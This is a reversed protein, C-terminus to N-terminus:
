PTLVRLSTSPSYREVALRLIPLRARLTSPHTLRLTLCDEISIVPIRGGANAATLKIVRVLISDAASDVAVPNGLSDNLIVPFKLTDGPGVIIQASVSTACLLLLLWIFRNM